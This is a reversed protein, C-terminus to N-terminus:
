GFRDSDMGFHNQTSQCVSQHHRDVTIATCIINVNLDM